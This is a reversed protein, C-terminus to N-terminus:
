AGASSSSRRPKWEAITRETLTAAHGLDEDGAGGSEDAPPDHRQEDLAAVVHPRENAGARIRGRDLREARPDDGAVHEDGSSTRRAASPQPSTM